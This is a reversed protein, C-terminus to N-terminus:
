SWQEKLMAEDDLISFAAVSLISTRVLVRHTNRTRDSRIMSRLALHFFAEPNEYVAEYIGDYSLGARTLALAVTPSPQKLQRGRVPSKGVQGVRQTHGYHVTFTSVM